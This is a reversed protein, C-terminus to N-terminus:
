YIVIKKFIKQSQNEIQLIYIGQKLAQTELTYLEPKEVTKKILIHGSLDCLSLESESNVNQLNVVIFDKAPNPYVSILSELNIQNLGTTKQKVLTLSHENESWKSYHWLNSKIKWKVYMTDSEFYGNESFMEILKYIPIQINTQNISQNYKAWFIFPRANSILSDFHLEYTAFPAASEWNFNVHLSDELKYYLVFSDSPNTIKFAEFPNKFVIGLVQKGNEAEISDNGIIAYVTWNLLLTDKQNLHFLNHITDLHHKNFNFLTDASWKNAFFEYKNKISTDASSVFIKYYVGKGAPSWSFVLDSNLIANSSQYTSDQPQYIKFTQIAEPNFQSEMWNIRIKLWDKLAEVEANYSGRAAPNPQILSDLTPWVQYNLEQSLQLKHAVSDIFNPLTKINSFLLANWRNIIANRFNIDLFLGQYWRNGQVWWGQPYDNFYYNVNGAAIDYDWVPGMTLKQGKNKYMFVSSFFNADNNKLIENLLYWNVFSPVDIKSQYGLLSDDFNVSFISKEVENIYDVIYKGQQPQLNEPEKVLFPIGEGSYFWNPGDLRADAEILYAGTLNEGTTDTVKMKQINLRNADIEIQESLLYNGIYQNNLVVDVFQSRPTYNLGFRKSMEYALQNRILSKDAYNALLVWDRHAPMGLLSQRTNLKLRYPKKEYLWTSNGRGRIQMPIEIKNGGPNQNSYLHLDSKIYEEKSTISDGYETQIVFLPLGTKVVQVRVKTRVLGNQYLVYEKPTSFNLASVGSEQKVGGVLASDAEKLSFSLKLNSVDANEPVIVSVLTDKFNFGYFNNDFNSHLSKSIFINELSSKKNTGQCIVILPLFFLPLLLSKKTLNTFM